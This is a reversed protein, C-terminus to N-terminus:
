LKGKFSPREKQEHSIALTHLASVARGPLSALMFVIPYSGGHEPQDGASLGALMYFCTPSPLNRSEMAMSRSRFSPLLIPSVGCGQWSGSICM